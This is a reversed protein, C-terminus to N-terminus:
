TRDADPALYASSDPLPIKVLPSSARSLREPSSIRLHVAASQHERRWIGVHAKRSVVRHISLVNGPDVRPRDLALEPNAHHVTTLSPAADSGICLAGIHRPM